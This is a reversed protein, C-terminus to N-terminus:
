TALFGLRGLRADGSLSLLWLHVTHSHIVATAVEHLLLLLGRAIVEELIALLLLLLLLIVLLWRNRCAILVKHCGRIVLHLLLLYLVLCSIHILHHVNVVQLSLLQVIPDTLLVVVIAVFVEGGHVLVGILFRVPKLSFLSNKVIVQLANLM